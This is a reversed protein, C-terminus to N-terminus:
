IDVDKIKDAKSSWPGIRSGAPPEYLWKTWCWWSYVASRYYMVFDAMKDNNMLDFLHATAVTRLMIITFPIVITLFTARHMHAHCKHSIHTDWACHTLTSFVSRRLSISQSSPPLSFPLFYGLIYDSCTMSRSLMHLLPLLSLPTIVDQSITM